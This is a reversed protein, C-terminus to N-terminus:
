KLIDRVTSIYAQTIERALRTQAATSASLPQTRNADTMAEQADLVSMLTQEYLALWTLGANRAASLIQDNLARLREVTADVDARGTTDENSSKSFPNDM